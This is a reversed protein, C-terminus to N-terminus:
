KGAVMQKLMEVYKDAGGPQYGTEGITEGKSNLLVITPFGEIGYKQSLEENQKKLEASQTGKRPFDIKVLILNEEAYKKFEDKSFVEKDLKICWGCWDSGTFDLLVPKNQEAALKLAAQYDTLWLGDAVPAEVAKKEEIAPKDQPNQKSIAESLMGVYGDPGGERYGTKLFVKGDSDMLFVTPFGKVNYQDKLKNNAELQEKSLSQRRPFDIKVLVLNEKAYKKFAPKTFVERDLKICWGCWDSGTFDVLMPRKLEKSVAKAVEFDTFWGGAQAEKLKSPKIKAEVAENANLANGFVGGVILMGVTLVALKKM